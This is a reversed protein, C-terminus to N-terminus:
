RNASALRSQSNKSPQEKVTYLPLLVCGVRIPSRQVPIKKLLASSKIRRAEALTKSRLMESFVSAAAQMLVCGSGQWAVATIRGRRDLRVTITLADGCFSNQGRFTKTPKTLRGRNRPQRAHQMILNPYLAAM